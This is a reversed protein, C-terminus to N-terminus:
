YSIGYFVEESAEEEVIFEYGISKIKRCIDDASVRNEDYEVVAVADTFNVNGSIVGEMNRLNNQINAACGACGMGIVNFREKKM